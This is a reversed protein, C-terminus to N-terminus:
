GSQPLWRQRRRQPQWDADTLDEVRLGQRAAPQAFSEPVASSPLLYAMRAAATSHEREQWFGEPRGRRRAAATRGERAGARLLGATSAFYFCRRRCGARGRALPAVPTTGPVPVMPHGSPPVLPAGGRAASRARCRARVTGLLARRCGRSSPASASAVTEPRPLGGLRYGPSISAAAPRAGTMATLPSPGCASWAIRNAARKSGTAMDRIGIPRLLSRKAQDHSV